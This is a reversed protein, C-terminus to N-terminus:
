EGGSWAVQISKRDDQLIQHDKKECNEIKESDHHDAETELPFRKPKVRLFKEVSRAVIVLLM